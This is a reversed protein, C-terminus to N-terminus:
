YLDTYMCQLVANMMIFAMIVCYLTKLNIKDWQRTQYIIEFCVLCYLVYINISICTDQNKEKIM